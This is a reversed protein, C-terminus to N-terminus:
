QDPKLFQILNNIFKRFCTFTVPSLNKLYFNKELNKQFTNLNLEKKSLNRSKKTNTLLLKKVLNKTINSNMEERM